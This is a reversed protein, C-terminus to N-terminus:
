KAFVKELNDVEDLIPKAVKAAAEPTKVAEAQMVLGDFKRAEANGGKARVAAKVSDWNKRLGAVAAKIQTQDKAEAGMELERGYVDLRTVASPIQPKFPENLDAAILTVQNAQRMAAARDKAAVARGIATVAADLRRLDAGKMEVALETAAKQLDQHKASAKAWDNAKAEDYLNEGFEGVDALSKPATQANLPLPALALIALVAVSLTRSM